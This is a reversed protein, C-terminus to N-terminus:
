LGLAAAVSAPMLSAVGTLVGHVVALTVEARQLSLFAQVCYCLGLVALFFFFFKFLIITSFPSM